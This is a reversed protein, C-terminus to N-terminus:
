LINFNIFYVLLVNGKDTVPHLAKKQIEPVNFGATYDHWGLWHPKHCWAHAVSTTPTPIVDVPLSFVRALQLNVQRILKETVVYEAQMGSSHHKAHTMLPAWFNVNNWGESYLLLM